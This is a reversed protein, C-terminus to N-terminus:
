SMSDEGKGKNEVEDKDYVEDIIIDERRDEEERSRGEEGV